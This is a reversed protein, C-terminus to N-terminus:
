REEERIYAFIRSILGQARAAALEGLCLKASHGSM